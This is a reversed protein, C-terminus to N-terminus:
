RQRVAEYLLIAASASVNLSDVQGAMPIAINRVGEGAWEDGLGNAESGLVIAVAGDYHSQAYDEGDEVRAALIRIKLDRLWQIVQKSDAVALRTRFIAGLSARITNPNAADTMPNSLILADAGAGDMTRLVAGINGPKEVQDLVCILPSDPLSLSSLAFDPTDVTAVVGEDRDGFALKEFVSDEVIFVSTSSSGVCERISESAPSDYFTRRFFLERLAWDSQLAQNIERRGDIITRQQKRRGRRERLRVAHKIRANQPSSIVLIEPMAKPSQM